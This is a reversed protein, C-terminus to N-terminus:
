DPTQALTATCRIKSRSCGSVLASSSTLSAIRWIARATWKSQRLPSVGTENFENAIVRYSKGESILKWLLPALDSRRAEARVQRARASALQCGPPFRRTSDRRTNGVRVGRQKLAALVSKMRESQIKSEYEAVAALIHVTFKNADPFDVAVFDLRSEMLRTIMAVNRSLRDLRAIVLVADM